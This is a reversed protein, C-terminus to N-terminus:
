SFVKLSENRSRFNIFFSQTIRSKTSMNKSVAHMKQSNFIIMDGTKPILTLFKFNNKIMDEHSASHGKKLNELFIKQYENEEDIQCDYITLAGGHDTHQLYLNVSFQKKITQSEKCDKIDWATMDQHPPAEGGKDFIRIIGYYADKNYFKEVECGHQWYKNIQNFVSHAPASDGFIESINSNNKEVLSFYEETNNKYAYDFIASGIKGVSPNIEYKEKRGFEEIKKAYNACENNDLFHSIRCAYINEKIMLNLIKTSLVNTEILM